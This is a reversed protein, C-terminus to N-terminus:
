GRSRRERPSMGHLDSYARTFNSQSSFGTAVAIEGISLRTQRVLEDAKSLRLRMYHSVVSRGFDIGFRRQLQRASIGCLRAIQDLSLPDAIHDEMLRVATAVTAHFRTEDTEQTRQADDAVRVRTHIFWDSVASALAAGHRARILAHMMDLPAVGGACTARDRDLVFLRKEIMLDPFEERMADMHEWHVTFRRNAMLGARALLVSGGSIGGLQTGHRAAHRLFPMEQRGTLAFPNGGAVVFLKDVFDEQSNIPTTEFMGGCSSSLAGGAASLFRISYLDHGALRNAARLPEIAAAASMMAFDPTM